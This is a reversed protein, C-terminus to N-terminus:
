LEDILVALRRLLQEASEREGPSLSGFMRSLKAEVDERKRAHAAAGAETLVVEVARRDCTSSRREVMGERELTDIMRSATSAAVGAAEALEGCRAEPLSGLADLLHFQPMSLGGPEGAARGRARRVSRFFEDWASTLDPYADTPTDAATAPQV